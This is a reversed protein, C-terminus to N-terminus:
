PADRPEDSLYAHFTGWTGSLDIRVAVPLAGAAAPALWASLETAREGAREGSHLFGAIPDVAARCLHAEGRYADHRSPELPRVGLDDYRLDYRRLGDFVRVAGECTGTAALRQAVLAEATLPDVTGVRMADPVDDRQGDTLVGEAGGDVRGASGYELDIRQGRDRYASQVRYFSPVLTPGEVIGGATASSTWPAVAGLLGSTRVSAHARYATPDVHAQVDVTLVRLALYYVDYHRTLADAARAGSPTWTALAALVITAARRSRMRDASLTAHRGGATSGTRRRASLTAAVIRRARIVACFTDSPM